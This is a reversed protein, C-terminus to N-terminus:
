AVQRETHADTGLSRIAEQLQRELRSIERALASRRIEADSLQDATIGPPLTFTATLELRLQELRRRAESPFRVDIYYFGAMSARKVVPSRTIQTLFSAEPNRGSIRLGREVVLRYWARYHIPSAGQPTHLLVWISMERIQAGRLAKGPVFEQPRPRPQIPAQDADDQTLLNLVHLREELDSKRSRLEAAERQLSELRQEITAMVRGM